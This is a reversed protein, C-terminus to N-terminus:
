AEIRRVPPNGARPFHSGPHKGKAGRKLGSAAALIAEKQHEYVGNRHHPTAIITHIGQHAAQKAMELSDNM